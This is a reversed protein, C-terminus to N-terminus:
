AQLVRGRTEPLLLAAIVVLGYAIGAFIGIASSLPITAGLLGVLWPNIAGLGRGFNYCFGQGSARVRTPFLETFFSGMGSFIGSAFFGLPFGLILMMSDNLPVNTYVLVTAFCCVAFLLFNRRRGIADTLYASVIYGAFSGAIIVAIYWGSGFITLGRQERLFTPLWTTIAYYGGNAGASLLAGLLTTRILAPSFIDWVRRTDEGAAARAQAATYVEPEQVLRRVFFVLIAPAIGIFFVVRWSIDAPLYALCLSSAIAAIAWGPAWGSQVFGVAKGRHRAGITEAILVSGAAWEGGFGFGQLARVILLQEFSQTFGSLATFFAFWLITIQLMRVRGVRDALMGTIWGGFASTLLAVTQLLGADGKSMGWTLTLVPILFTYIQVDMGDLAWGTFCTWLTRREGKRLDRYWGFM